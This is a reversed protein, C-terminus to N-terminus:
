TTKVTPAKASASVEFYVWMGSAAHGPVGCVMLYRGAKNATFRVDDRKGSMQGNVPNNSYAGAFVPDGPTSPVNNASGNVVVVSHPVIDDNYFPMVVKTGVPVIITMEGRAYGNFNWGGANSTLGSIVPITATKTASDYQISAAVNKPDISPRQSAAGAPAAPQQAPQTQPQQPAAQQSGASTAASDASADSGKPSCAALALAGLAALALQSARSHPQYM